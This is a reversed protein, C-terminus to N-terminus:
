LTAEVLIFKNNLRKDTLELVERGPLLGRLGGLRGHELLFFARKGRNDEIWERIARNDLDVFVLVRNGTYFNEGKWNMQWAVLPEDSSARAEYYRDVLERQGWHPSLDIMYVSLSWATFAIAVGLLARAAVRRVWPLVALAIVLTSAIGFGTLIPRYDFHEPWQRQYNYVFLHILREYGQPRADTIWSLDRAVFALLVAAVVLLVAYPGGAWEYSEDTQGDNQGGDNQGGDNQGGDNQPGDAHARRLLWWSAAAALGGVAVLLLAVGTGMGHDLVWRGTDDPAVTAPIVGRLDGYLGGFGLVLPIPTLLALAEGGYAFWAATGTIKNGGDESAGISRSGFLRDLLIGVVIAAAPVAPFIYHHFKTVMAAFLTFAGAFWLTAIILTQRRADEGASAAVADRGYRHWLWMTLAAPALAIWPFMAFGLQEVFYEISGNDGHVGAALRNIHDHVLLRDTFAPGHRVFMAVYWPMGVALVTLAGLAVRLRGDLLLRWRASGVLYLLAIMGPLAFGPIGKGMFGLGCFLYFGLMLLSQARRERIAFVLISALAAIWVLAQLAPQFWAIAPVMEHSAANGPLGANGASGFVFRDLHWHFGEPVLEVNRTFLYLAQPAVVVFLAGVVLARSSVRVPGVRYTTVEREPDENVALVFLAMAITMSAVFPMDTIAQRSLFFFHPTTALVLAALAGARRSFVKAVAAYTAMLAGLAMIAIPLRLAWEPHAPNADPEFPVGLAGMSLAESWFIFIPKSWFWNEQAWWLSIWDDRALIERAVEGYHTEWPDWLGYTGLFPLYLGGAVVFVLMAPRTAASLALVVLGAAIVYPLGPYGFVLAGLVTVAAAAPITVLPSMAMPERGAGWPFRQPGLVTDVVSVASGESRGFRVLGFLIVLGAMAVLLTGTGLLPGRALQAHNAMLLATGLLGIALAGGGIAPIWLPISTTSKQSSGPADPADIRAERSPPKGDADSAKSKRDKSV